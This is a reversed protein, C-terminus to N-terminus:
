SKVSPTLIINRYDIPGHDGQILLPGPDGESSDLAGGTIGPIEQNCIITKGNAVVTVMRGVLTIDYTQWEGPAKAVMESPAIFGYIAGMLDKLPEAGKSDIVQVEYRGRLYVGSNSGKPYRFEIHLKFDTFTKDSVLNAGSKASRLIGGEAKWQNEGLTHWGELSTGNFLHIPKGWVPKSIGRLAPARVGTWNHTKGNSFTMSGLLNDGDLTGEVSLDNNEPEWQPPISFSMKGDNFNVRSIPRASGSIGVFQGVLMHLGSHRVELWSPFKKGDVDVTIDWRGEISSSDRKEFPGYITRGTSATSLLLLLPMIICRFMQRVNIISLRM